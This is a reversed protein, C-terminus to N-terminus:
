NGNPASQQESAFLDELDGTKKSLAKAIRIAIDVGPKVTGYEYSQYLRETIKAENAVELQTKGSSKRADKLKKNM